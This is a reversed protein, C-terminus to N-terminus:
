IKHVEIVDNRKLGLVRAASGQNVSIEVYGSSGIIALCEGEESEAYASNLKSLEAKGARIVFGSDM